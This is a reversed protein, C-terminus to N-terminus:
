HLTQTDCPSNGSSAKPLQNFRCTPMRALWSNAHLNCIEGRGWSTSNDIVPAYFDPSGGTCYPFRESGLYSSVEGFGALAEKKFLACSAM